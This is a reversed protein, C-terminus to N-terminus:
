KLCGIILASKVKKDGGRNKISAPHLFIRPLSHNNSLQLSHQQIVLPLWYRAQTAKWKLPEQITMKFFFCLCKLSTTNPLIIYCVCVSVCVCVCFWTHLFAMPEAWTVNAAPAPLHFKGAARLCRFAMTTECNKEKNGTSPLTKYNMSTWQIIGGMKHVHM